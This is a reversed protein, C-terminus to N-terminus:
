RKRHGMNPRRSSEVMQADLDTTNAKKGEPVQALQPCREPSETPDSRPESDKRAVAQYVELAASYGYRGVRSGEDGIGELGGAGGFGGREKRHAVPGSISTGQNEASM